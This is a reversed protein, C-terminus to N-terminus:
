CIEIVRDHGGYDCYSEYHTFGYQTALEKLQLRQDYGIEFFIRGTPALFNKANELIKKYCALGTEGGSLALYPDHNQVENSLHRIQEQPIYPPNSVILDFKQFPISDFWDSQLTQFRAELNNKQANDQAITLAAASYDVALVSAHSLESLLALSICGSGTGLDLISLPKNLSQNHRLYELVREVLIETDNRPALVDPTIKMPLGWFETEGLIRSLPEGAERRQIINFLDAQQGESISDDTLIILATDDVRLVHKLAIRVEQGGAIPDVAIFRQKINSLFPNHV